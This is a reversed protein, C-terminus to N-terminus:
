RPLKGQENEIIFTNKFEDTYTIRRTGIIKVYKNESLIKVEKKTFLRKSM